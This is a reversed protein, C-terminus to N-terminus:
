RGAPIVVEDAHALSLIVVEAHAQSALFVISLYVLMPWVWGQAVCRTWEVVM